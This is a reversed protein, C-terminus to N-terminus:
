LHGFWLDDLNEGKNNETLKVTKYKLHLHM